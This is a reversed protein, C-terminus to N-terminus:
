HDIKEDGGAGTGTGVQSTKTDRKIV